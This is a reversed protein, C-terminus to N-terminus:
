KAEIATQISAADKEEVIGASVVLDFIEGCSKKYFLKLPYKLLSPAFRECLEGGGYLEFFDRVSMSRFEM